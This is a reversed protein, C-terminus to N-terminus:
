ALSQPCHKPGGHKGVASAAACMSLVTQFPGHSASAILHTKATPDLDFHWFALIGFHAGSAERGGVVM